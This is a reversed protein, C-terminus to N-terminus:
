WRYVGNKVHRRGLAEFEYSGSGIKLPSNSHVLIYIKKGSFGYPVPEEQLDEFYERGETSFCVYGSGDVGNPDYYSVFAQCTDKNIQEISSARKIEVRVVQGDYDFKRSEMEGFTFKKKSPPPTKKEAGMTLASLYVLSLILLIIRKM